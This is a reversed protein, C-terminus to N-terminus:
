VTANACAITKIQAHGNGESEIHCSVRVVNLAMETLMQICIPSWLGIFAM